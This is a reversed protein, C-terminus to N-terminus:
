ELYYLLKNVIKPNNIRCAKTLASDRDQNQIALNAGVTLIDMMYNQLPTLKEAENFKPAIVPMTPSVLLDVHKFQGRLAAM